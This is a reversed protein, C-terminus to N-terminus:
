IKNPNHHKQTPTNNQLNSPFNTQHPKAFVEDDLCSELWSPPDNCDTWPLLDLGHGFNSCECLCCPKSSSTHRLHFHSAMFDLDGRNVYIIGCFGDALFQGGRPDPNGEMDIHPWTAMIGSPEQVNAELFSAMDTLIWGTQGHSWLQVM